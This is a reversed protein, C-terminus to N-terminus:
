RRIVGRLRKRINVMGLNYFFFMLLTTAAVIAVSKVSDLRFGFIVAGFIMTNIISLTFWIQMLAYAVAAPMKYKEFIANGIPCVGMFTIYPLLYIFNFGNFFLSLVTIVIHTLVPYRLRGTEASMMVCISALFVWFSSMIQLYYGMSLFMTGLAACIAAFM